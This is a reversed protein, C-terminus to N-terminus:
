LISDAPKIPFPNKTTGKRLYTWVLMGWREMRWTNRQQTPWGSQKPSASHSPEGALGGTWSPGEPQPWGLQCHLGGTWAKERFGGAGVSSWGHTNCPGDCSVTMEDAPRKPIMPSQINSLSSWWTLCRPPLNYTSHGFSICLMACWHEEPLMECVAPLWCSGWSGWASPLSCSWVASISDRKHTWINKLKM